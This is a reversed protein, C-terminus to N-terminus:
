VTVATGCVPRKVATAFENKEENYTEWIIIVEETTTVSKM